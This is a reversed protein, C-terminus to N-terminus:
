SIKVGATRNQEQAIHQDIDFAIWALTWRVRETIHLNCAFAQSGDAYLSGATAHEPHVQKGCIVCQITKSIAIPDTM